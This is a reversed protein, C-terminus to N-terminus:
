TAEGRWPAARLEEILAEAEALWAAAASEASEAASEAASGVASWVASEASEAASWVASWATWRATSCAASRAALTAASRAVFHARMRQKHDGREIATIVDEIADVAQARHEDSWHPALPLVRERLRRIALRDLLAGVEDERDATDGLLMYLPSLMRTREAQDLLGDNIKIGLDALRRDMCAPHDPYKGVEGPEGHIYAIRATLCANELGRGNGAPIPLAEVEALRGPILTTNM